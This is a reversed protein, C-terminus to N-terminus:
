APSGLRICIEYQYAALAVALDVLVKPPVADDVRTKGMRARM